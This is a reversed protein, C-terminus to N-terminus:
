VYASYRFDLIFDIFVKQIYMFKGYIFLFLYIYMDM